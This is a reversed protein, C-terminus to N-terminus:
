DFHRHSIIKVSSIHGTDQEKLFLSFPSPRLVLLPPIGNETVFLKAGRLEESLPFIDDCRQKLAYIYCITNYYIYVFYQLPITLVDSPIM